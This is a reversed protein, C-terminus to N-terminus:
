RAHTHFFRDHTMFGAATAGTPRVSRLYFDQSQQFQTAVAQNFHLQQQNFEQQRQLPRVLNYYNSAGGIGDPRVLNLYPSVTPRAPEYRPYPNQAHLVTGSM